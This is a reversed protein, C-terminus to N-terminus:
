EVEKLLAQYDEELLGFCRMRTTGRKHTAQIRKDELWEVVKKLQATATAECMKAERDASFNPDLRRIENRIDMMEEDTLLLSDM